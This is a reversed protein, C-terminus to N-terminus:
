FLVLDMYSVTAVPYCLKNNGCRMTAYSITGVLLPSSFHFINQTHWVETGLGQTLCCPLFTSDHNQFLLTMTKDEFEVTHPEPEPFKRLEESEPNEDM